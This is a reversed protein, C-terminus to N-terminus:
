HNTGNNTGYTSCVASSVPVTPASSSVSVGACSRTVAQVQTTLAFCLAAVAALGVLVILYAARFRPRRPPPLQEVGGAVVGPNLRNFMVFLSALQPTDSVLRRDIAALRRQDRRHARISPGSPVAVAAGPSLRRPRRRPFGRLLFSRRTTEHSEGAFPDHITM